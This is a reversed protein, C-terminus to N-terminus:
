AAEALALAEPLRAYYKRTDRLRAAEAKRVERRDPISLDRWVDGLMAADGNDIRCDILGQVCGDPIATDEFLDTVTRLSVFVLGKPCRDAARPIESGCHFCPRNM